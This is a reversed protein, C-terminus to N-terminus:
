FPIEVDEYLHANERIVREQEKGLANWGGPDDEVAVGNGNAFNLSQKILENVQQLTPTGGKVGRWDVKKWWYPFAAVQEATYGAALLQKAVKAIKPAHLKSDLVCVEALTGFMEQQQSPNNVTRKPSDEAIASQTNNSESESEFQIPNSQIVPVNAQMQNCKIDDAIMQPYKSHKARIQQHKDWTVMQLYPLGGVNYVQVLGAKQVESLLKTVAKDNVADLRLPYCRARLIAPRADMRGYDDCQVMLRYFFVEGEPTLADVNPSTCISDKLIRNPM